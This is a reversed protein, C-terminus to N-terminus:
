SASRMSPLHRIISPHIESLRSITRWAGYIAHHEDVEREYDEDYEQVVLTPEKKENAENWLNRVVVRFAGTCPESFFAGATMLKLTM